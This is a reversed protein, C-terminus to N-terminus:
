GQVVLVGGKTARLSNLLEASLQLNLGEGHCQDQVLCCVFSECSVRARPLVVACVNPQLLKLLKSSVFGM